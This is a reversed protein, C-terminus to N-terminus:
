NFADTSHQPSCYRFYVVCRKPDSAANEPYLQFSSIEVDGQPSFCKKPLCSSSGLTAGLALLPLTRLM